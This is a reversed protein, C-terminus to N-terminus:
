GPQAAETGGLSCPTMKGQARPGLVPPARGGKMANVLLWSQWQWSVHPASM